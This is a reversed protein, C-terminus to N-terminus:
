RGYRKLWEAFWTEPEIKPLAGKIFEAGYDDGYYKMPATPDEPINILIRYKDKKKWEIDISLNPGTMIVPPTLVVEWNQLIYNAYNFVFRVARQWIEFAVPMGDDDDWAEELDLLYTSDIIEDIIEQLRKDYEFIEGRITIINIPFATARKNFPRRYPNKYLVNRM